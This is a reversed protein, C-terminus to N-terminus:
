AAIDRRLDREAANLRSRLVFVSKSIRRRTEPKMEDIANRLDQMAALLEGVEEVREAQRRARAERSARYNEIEDPDVAEPEEKLNGAQPKSSTGIAGLHNETYGGNKGLLFVRDSELRVTAKWGEALEAVADVVLRHLGATGAETQITYKHGVKPEGAGSPWQIEVPAPAAAYIQTRQIKPIKM